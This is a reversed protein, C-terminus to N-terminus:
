PLDLIGGGLHVSEMGSLISTRWGGKKLSGKQRQKEQSPRRTGQSLAAGHLALKALHEFHRHRHAAQSRHDSRLDISGVHAKDQIAAGEETHDTGGAGLREFEM